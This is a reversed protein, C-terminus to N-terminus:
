KEAAINFKWSTFFFSCVFCSMMFSQLDDRIEGLSKLGDRM